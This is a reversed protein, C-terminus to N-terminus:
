ITINLKEIIDKIKIGTRYFIVDGRFDERSCNLQSNVALILNKCKAKKIKVKKNKLYEPTWFGVIELYAVRGDPHRFTFDPIFVSNGLDIVKSEREIGWKRNKKSFKNFFNEEIRSDFLPIDSYHTTLGCNQSLSFERDGDYTDIDVSMKWNKALLLGPLFNAMRIGYRQTNRFLSAPGELVIEYGRTKLPKIWHLLHALKIYQFVVRYDSKLIIKMQRARYLLGQALGLNYRKLLSEPTYRNEFQRLIQNRPLDGYILEDIEGLPISEEKAVQSLVQERNSRHLLDPRTVVPYYKQASSFIRHRLTPYKIDRPPRFESKEELFKALGRIIKYDTREGELEELSSSLEGYSKGIHSEFMQILQGCIDLYVPAQRRTIYLPVVKKGKNRYRILESTLM